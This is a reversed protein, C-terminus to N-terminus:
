NFALSSVDNTIGLASLNKQWWQPDSSSLMSALAGVVLFVALVLSLLMPTLRASSLFGAYATVAFAVGSLVAAPFTFVVAGIFSRELLDALGIWGLLVIVAHAL